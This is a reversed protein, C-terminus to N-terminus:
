QLEDLKQGFRKVYDVKELVDIWEQPISELGYYLGALSGAISGVTDTDDGLNVATLVASRYDESNLFSWMSAELTSVVYGSSYIREKSLIHFEGINFMRKYNGFISYQIKNDVTFEAIDAMTSYFIDMKKNEPYENFMFSISDQNLISFGLECLIFCGFVSIDHAHTVSSVEKVIEYREKMSDIDKLLHILPLIRMLSGNGNNDIGNDGSPEIGQNIRRMARETTGGIDFIYGDATFKGRKWWHMMNEKLMKILEPTSQKVQVAKALCLTLSTDDSWTGKPQNHTGYERMDVVPNNSLIERKVFEVPVGLADGVAGGLIMAIFKNEM